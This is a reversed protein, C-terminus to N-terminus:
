EAAINATQSQDLLRDIVNLFNDVDFPKAIMELAGLHRPLQAPGDLAAAAATCLIIPIHRTAADGRLVEIVAWGTQDRGMMLDVIVLDPRVQKVFEFSGIWDGSTHVDYGEGADLLDRMLELFIPDDDIVAIRTRLSRTDSM